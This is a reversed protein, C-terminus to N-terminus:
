LYLNNGNCKGFSFAQVFLYIFCSIVDVSLNLKFNNTNLVFLDLLSYFLSVSLSRSLSNFYISLLSPSTPPESWSCSNTLSCCFFLFTSHFYIGYHVTTIYNLCNLLEIVSVVKAVIITYSKFPVFLSYQSIWM